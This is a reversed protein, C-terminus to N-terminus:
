TNKEKLKAEIERVVEITEDGDMYDMFGIKFIEDDTLGQWKKFQGATASLTISDSIQNVLAEDTYLPIEKWGDLLDKFLSADRKTWCLQGVGDERIYAYAYPEQQEDPVYEIGLDDGCRKCIFVYDQASQEVEWGECECVYRGASHSADRCFGHPADPNNSCEVEQAPQELAEKCADCALVLDNLNGTLEAKEIMLLAEDKTM